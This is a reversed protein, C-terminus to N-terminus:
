RGKIEPLLKLASEAMRAQDAKATYLEVMGLTTHGSVAQIEKTTAGSESLAVLAAKRLGHPTCRPPLGASAASAKILKLVMQQARLPRGYADGVRYVGLRPGAQMAGWLAPAIPIVQVKEDGKRTKGVRNHIAGGAVDAWKWRIIDGSRQATYYLYSFVLRERTGLPWRGIFQALEAPTWTHLTGGRYARLGAFPNDSRLEISMAYRMVQSLAARTLNAMAPTRAGIEEIIKRAKDRPLDAVMRHGDAALIPQLALRYTRQTSPKINAFEASRLYGAVVAALSGEAARRM